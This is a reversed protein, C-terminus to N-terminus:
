RRDGLQSLAQQGGEALQMRREVRLCGLKGVDDLNPARVRLVGRRESEPLLEAPVGHLDLVAHVTHLAHQRAMMDPIKKPLNTGFFIQSHLISGEDYIPDFLYRAYSRVM